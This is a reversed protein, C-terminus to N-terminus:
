NTQGLGKLYKQTVTQLEIGNWSKKKSEKVQFQWLISLSTGEQKPAMSFHSVYLSCYTWISAFSHKNLYFLLNIYSLDWDCSWGQALLLKADEGGKNDPWGLKVEKRSPLLIALVESGILAWCEGRELANSVGMQGRGLIAVPYGSQKGCQQIAEWMASYM